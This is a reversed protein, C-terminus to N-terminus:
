RQHLSSPVKTRTKGSKAPCWVACERRLTKLVARDCFWLKMRLVEERPDKERLALRVDHRSIGDVEFGGDRTDALLRPVEPDDPYDQYKVVLRVTTPVEPTWLPAASNAALFDVVDAPDIGTNTPLVVFLDLKLRAHTNVRAIMRTEWYRCAVAQVGLVADLMGPVEDLLDTVREFDPSPLRENKKTRRAEAREILIGPDLDSEEIKRLLGRVSMLGNGKLQNVRQNSPATPDSRTLQTPTTPESNNLGYIKTLVEQESPRLADGTWTGDEVPPLRLNELNAYVHHHIGIVESMMKQTLGLAERREVLRNNKLRVLLRLEKM